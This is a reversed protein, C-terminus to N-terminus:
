SIKKINFSNHHHNLEEALDVLYEELVQFHDLDMHDHVPEVVLQSGVVVWTGQVEVVVFNKELWLLGFV